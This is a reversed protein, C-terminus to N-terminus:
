AFSGFCSCSFQFSSVAPCVGKGGDVVDDTDEEVEAEVATGPVGDVLEAVGATRITTKTTVCRRRGDKSSPASSRSDKACTRTDWTCRASSTTRWDDTM